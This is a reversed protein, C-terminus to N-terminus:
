VNLKLLEILQSFLKKKGRMQFLINQFASLNPKWTWLKGPVAKLGREFNFMENSHEDLSKSFIKM